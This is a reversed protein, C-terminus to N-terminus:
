FCFGSKLERVEKRNWTFWVKGRKNEGRYCYNDELGEALVINQFMAAHGTGGPRRWTSKMQSLVWVAAM